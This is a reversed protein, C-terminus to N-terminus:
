EVVNELIEDILNRLRKLLDDDINLSGLLQNEIQMDFDPSERVEPPLSDFDLRFFMRMYYPLREYDIARVLWYDALLVLKESLMHSGDQMNINTGILDDTFAHTYEHLLMFFSHYFDAESDPFRIAAHFYNDNKIGRGNRSIKYSLIAIPPKNFHEFIRNYKRLEVRLREEIINRFDENQAHLREWYDFFFTAEKELIEIFPNIFYTMDDPSFGQHNLLRNKLDDFDQSVLPYFNIMALRGFNNNYYDEIERLRSVLDFDFDGRKTSMTEIYEECHLNSANNVRMYALVHFVLDAHKSYSIQSEMENEKALSPITILLVLVLILIKIM